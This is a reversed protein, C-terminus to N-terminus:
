EVRCEFFFFYIFVLSSVIKLVKSRERLACILIDKASIKKGSIISYIGERM